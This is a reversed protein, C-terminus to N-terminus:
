NITKTITIKDIYSKPHIDTDNNYHCTVTYTSGTIVRFDRLAYDYDDDTILIDGGNISLGIAELEVFPDRSLDKERNQNSDLVMQILEKVKIGHVNTGEYSSFKANFADIYSYSPTRSPKEIFMYIISNESPELCYLLVCSIIALIISICGIIVLKNSKEKMLKMGKM